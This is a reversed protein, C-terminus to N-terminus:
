LLFYKIIYGGPEQLQSAGACVHQYVRLGCPMSAESADTGQTM